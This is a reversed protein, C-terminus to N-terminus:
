AADVYPELSSPEAVADQDGRDQQDLEHGEAARQDEPPQGRPVAGVAADEPPM